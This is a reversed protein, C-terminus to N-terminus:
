EFDRAKKYLKYTNVSSNTREQKDYHIQFEDDSLIKLVTSGDGFLNMM